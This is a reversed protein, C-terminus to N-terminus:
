TSLIRLPVLGASRGTSCGMRNSSTILMFVALARPSVMGGDTRMRAVSTIWYPGLADRGALAVKGCTRKQVFAHSLNGQPTRALPHAYSAYTLRQLGVAPHM